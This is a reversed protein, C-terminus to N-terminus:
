YDNLANRVRYSGVKVLPMTTAGEAVAEQVGLALKGDAVQQLLKLADKYDRVITSDNELPRHKHLFYRTIARCWLTLLRPVPTIPLTLNRLQLFGDILGQADAIAEDIRALAEDALAIQEASFASRDDGLLSLEMLEYPVMPQHEDSAVEALERAGPSDHLQVYNIYPM